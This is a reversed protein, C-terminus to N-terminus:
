FEVGKKPPRGTTYYHKCCAIESVLGAAEKLFDPANRGTLIVEVEPYHGLVALFDKVQEESLLKAHFAGLFEDGTVMDYKGSCVAEKLAHLTEGALAKDEPSPENLIFKGRGRTFYTFNEGGNRRLFTIESSSGDKIFQAFFVRLSAGMARVALGAACTTKGKGDGTYIHLM